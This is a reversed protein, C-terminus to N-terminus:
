SKSDDKYARVMSRAEEADQLLRVYNYMMQLRTTGLPPQTLTSQEIKIKNLVTSPTKADRAFHSWVTQLKEQDEQTMNEIGYFQNLPLYNSALEPMPEKSLDPATEPSIHQEVLEEPTPTSQLPADLDM